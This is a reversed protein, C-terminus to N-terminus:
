IGKEWLAFGDAVYIQRYNLNKYGYQLQDRKKYYTFIYQPPETIKKLDEEKGIIQEIKIEKGALACLNTDGFLMTQGLYAFPLSEIFHLVETKEKVLERIKQNDSMYFRSKVSDDRLGCSFKYSMYAVQYCIPLLVLIALVRSFQLFRSKEAGLFLDYLMKGFMFYLFAIYTVTFKVAMYNTHSNRIKLLYYFIMIVGTIYAMMLMINEKNDRHKFFMVMSYIVVIIIVGLYLAFLPVFPVRHGFYVNSLGLINAIARLKSTWGFIDFGDNNGFSGYVHWSFLRVFPVNGIICALILAWLLMSIKKISKWVNFNFNYFLYFVALFILSPVIMEPYTFIMGLLGLSSFLLCEPCNTNQKSKSYYFLALLTGWFVNMYLNQSVWSATWLQQWACSFIMLAYPVYAIIKYKNTVSTKFLNYFIAGLSLYALWILAYTGIQVFFIDPLMFISSFAAFFMGTMVERNGTSVSYIDLQQYCSAFDAQYSNYRLVNAWMGFYGFEGNNSFYYTPTLTYIFPSCLVLLGLFSVIVIGVQEFDFKIIKSFKQTKTWVILTLAILLVVIYWVFDKVAWLKVNYYIFVCLIDLVLFGLLTSLSIRVILNKAINKWAILIHIGDGLVFLLIITVFILLLNIM